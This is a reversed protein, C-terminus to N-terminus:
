TYRRMSGRTIAVPRGIYM